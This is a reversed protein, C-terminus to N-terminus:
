VAAPMRRRVNARVGFGVDPRRIGAVAPPRNAAGNKQVAPPILRAARGSAARVPRSPRCDPHASGPGTAQPSIDQGHSRGCGRSRLGASETGRGARDHHAAPPIISRGPNRSPEQRSSPYGATQRQWAIPRQTPQVCRRRNSVHPLSATRSSANPATLPTVRSEPSPAAPARPAARDRETHGQTAPRLVTMAPTGRVTRKGGAPPNAAHDDKEFLASRTRDGLHHSSRSGVCAGPLM